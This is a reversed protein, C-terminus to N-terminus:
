KNKKPPPCLALHRQWLAIATAARELYFSQLFEREASFVNLINGGVQSSSRVLNYIFGDAGVALDYTVQERIVKKINGINDRIITPPNIPMHLARSITASTSFSCTAM